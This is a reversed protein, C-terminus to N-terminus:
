FLVAIYVGSYATMVYYCQTTHWQTAYSYLTLTHMSGTSATDLMAAQEAKSHRPM